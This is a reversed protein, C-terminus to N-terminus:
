KEIYKIRDFTERAYDRAAQNYQPFFLRAIVGKGQRILSPRGMFRCIEYTADCINKLVENDRAVFRRQMIFEFASLIEGDPDFKQEGAYKIILALYNRDKENKLLEAFIHSFEATGTKSMIRILKETYAPNAGFFSPEIGFQDITTLSQLYEYAESKIDSLIASEEAGLSGEELKKEIETMDDQTLFQLGAAKEFVSRTRVKVFSDNTKKYVPKTKAYLNQTMKYSNIIWNSMSFILSNDDTYIMYNWKSKDFIGCSWLITGSESFEVATHTDAIFFGATTAKTQIEDSLSMTGIPIQVISEGTSAKVIDATVESGSQYFFAINGSKESYAIAAAGSSFKSKVVWSQDAEGESVSCIGIAGNTLSIIMGEKCTKACFVEGAFRLDEIFEGFPSFRKATTKGNAGELLFVVISGDNMFCLPINKQMDTEITWKEKGNLGYCALGTQGQVIVRGDKEVVPASMIQFPCEASWLTVGSPNMLNLTSSNTIVYIFDGFATMFPSPTGRVRKQWMVTGDQTIGSLMRGESLLAIGYSTEVPQAVAGGGLAATWSPQEQALDITRLPTQSYSFQCFLAGIVLLKKRINM